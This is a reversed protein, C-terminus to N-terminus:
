EEFDEIEQKFKALEEESLSELMEALEDLLNDQHIQRNMEEDFLRENAEYIAEQQEITFHEILKNMEDPELHEVEGVMMSNEMTKRLWLKYRSVGYNFVEWKKDKGGEKYRDGYKDKVEDRVVQPWYHHEWLATIKKKIIPKSKPIIDKMVGKIEVKRAKKPQRNILTGAAVHKSIMESLASKSMGFVDAIEQLSYRWTDSRRADFRSARGTKESRPQKSYYMQIFTEMGNPISNVKPPEGYAKKFPNKAKQERMGDTVSEVLLDRYFQGISVLVNVIVNQVATDEHTITLNEKILHLSCKQAKFFEWQKHFDIMSRSFRDMSYVIVHKAQNARIMAKMKKYDPRAFDKGSATDEYTGVCEYNSPLTALYHGIGETQRVTSQKDTSIRVYVFYPVREATSEITTSWDIDKYSTTKSM